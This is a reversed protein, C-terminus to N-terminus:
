EMRTVNVSLSASLYRKPFFGGQPTPRLLLQAGSQLTLLLGEQTSEVARPADTPLLCLLPALLSRATDERPTVSLEGLTLAPSSLRGSDHLTASCSLGSLAGCEGELYHLRLLLGGESLPSVSGEAKISLGNLSGSLTVSFAEERFRLPEDSARKCSSLVLFLGFVLCFIRLIRMGTKKRM